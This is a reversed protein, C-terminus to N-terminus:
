LDLGIATLFLKAERSGPKLGLCPRGPRVGREAADRLECAWASSGMARAEEFGVKATSSVSRIGLQLM